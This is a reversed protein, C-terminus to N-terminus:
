DYYICRVMHPHSTLLHLSSTIANITEQLNFPLSRFSSNFSFLFIVIASKHHVYYPCHYTMRAHTCIYIYACVHMKKNSKIDYLIHYFKNYAM